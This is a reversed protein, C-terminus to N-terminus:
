ILDENRGRPADTPPKPPTRPSKTGLAGLIAAVPDKDRNRTNIGRKPDVYAADWGKGDSSPALSLYNLRGTEAAKRIADELSM